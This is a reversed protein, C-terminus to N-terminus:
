TGRQSLQKFRRYLFSFVLKKGDQSLTDWHEKDNDSFAQWMERDVSPGHYIGHEDEEWDEKWDNYSGRVPSKQDPFDDTKNNSHKKDDMTM